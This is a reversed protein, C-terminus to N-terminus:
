EIRDPSVGLSLVSEIEAQSACDFGSGLAAMAGLFAPDPNCKVAYFPRVTPLSRTWKEMPSTVVGLDLVYFPEKFDHNESVVSGILDTLGDKPLATVKKGKVGPAGMIIQLSKTNSVM